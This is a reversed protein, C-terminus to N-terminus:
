PLGLCRRSRRGRTRRDPQAPAQTLQLGVPMGARDRGVPMTIACLGLYNVWATNRVIRRNVRLHSDADAVDSMLPLTLCLTPSAIVDVADLRPSVAQALVDLRAVRALYERASRGEANCVAPAILPDLVGPRGRGRSERTSTNTAADAQPARGVETAIASAVSRLLHLLVGYEMVNAIDHTQEVSQSNLLRHDGAV